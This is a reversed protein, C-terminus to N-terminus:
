PCKVAIKNAFQAGWRAYADLSNFFAESLPQGQSPAQRPRVITLKCTSPASILKVPRDKAFTFDIYYDPDYVEVHLQKTKVPIKFPLTFHFTLITDKPDYDLYYDVPDKLDVKSRGAKAFTFYGVEKLSTVNAKALPALDERTFVGKRKAAIGQLAFTSYMDDFTWSHRLATASGDPAYVLDTKVTVWVHPHASAGDAAAVCCCAIAWLLIRKRLTVM